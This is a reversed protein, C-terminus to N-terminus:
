SAANRYELNAANTVAHGNFDQNMDFLDKRVDVLVPVEDSIKNATGTYHTNWFDFSLFRFSNFRLVVHM